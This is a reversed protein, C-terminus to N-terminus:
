GPSLGRCRRSGRAFSSKPQAKMTPRARRGCRQAASPRPPRTRPQREVSAERMGVRSHPAPRERRQQEDHHHGREQVQEHVLLAGHKAAAPREDADGCAAHPAHRNMPVCAQHEDQQAHAEDGHGGGREVEGLRQLLQQRGEGAEPKGCVLQAHDHADGQPEQRLEGGLEHGDVVGLDAAACRAPRCDRAFRCACAPRRKM